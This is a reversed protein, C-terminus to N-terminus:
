GGWVIFFAFPKCKCEKNYYQKPCIDIIAQLTILRNKFM